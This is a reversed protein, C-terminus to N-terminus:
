NFKEICKFYIKYICNILFFFYLNKANIKKTEIDYIANECIIESQKNNKKVFNIFNILKDEMIKKSSNDEIIIKNNQNKNKEQSTLELDIIKEKQINIFKQLTTYKKVKNSLYQEKIIKYENNHYKEYHRKLITLTSNFNYEHNCIDCIIKTNNSNLIFHDWLPHHNKRKTVKM